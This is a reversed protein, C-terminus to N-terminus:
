EDLILRRLIDVSRINIPEVGLLKAADMKSVWADINTSDYHEKTFSYPKVRVYPVKKKDLIEFLMTSIKADICTPLYVVPVYGMNLLYNGKAKVNRNAQVQVFELYNFYWEWNSTDLHETIINNRDDYFVDPRKLYSSNTPIDILGDVKFNTGFFLKSKNSM